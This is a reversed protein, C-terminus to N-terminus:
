TSNEDERASIIFIGLIIPILHANRALHFPFQTTSCILVALLSCFAGVALPTKRCTRFLKVFFFLIFGAIVLSPFGMESLLQFYLSHVNDWFDLPRKKQNVKEAFEKSINGEIIWNDGVRVIRKTENNFTQKFYRISNERNSGRFSDLGHGLPKLHADQVVKKWMDIRTGQMGMPADYLLVFCLTIALAPTSIAWFFIRKKFWLYTLLAVFLGVFVGTSNSQWCAVLLLLLYVSVIIFKFINKGYVKLRNKLKIGQENFDIDMDNIFSISLLLPFVMALYIGYCAELGFFAVHPMGGVGMLSQNRMDYGLFQLGLYVMAYAAVCTVGKIIFAIDKKDLCRIVTLYVGLGIFTNLLIPFGERYMLFVCTSWAFLAFLAINLNRELKSIKGPIYYMLGALIVVLGTVQFSFEQIQRLQMRFSYVLPNIVCFALIIWKM